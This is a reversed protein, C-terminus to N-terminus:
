FLVEFPIGRRNLEVVLREKHTEFFSDTLARQLDHKAYFSRLTDIYNMRDILVRDVKGSLLEALNAPNGPLLPGIFVFTSIGKSHIEALANVRERVSSAGKEFLRSIREDDTTITFGFDIEQFQLFIDLDRLALVSKSQINVPFQKKVLELLCQRTLGYRAEIAQYPDCVSSVWVTGRKARELQKRLLFPANVKVDVFEGWPESHGSYRRM